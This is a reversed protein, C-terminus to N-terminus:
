GADTAIQNDAIVFARREDDSMGRATIVPVEELGLLQAALLRGHGAIIVGDEGAIIPNRFGFREISRAIKAIQEDSHTRSNRAYPKLLATKIAAIEGSHQMGAQTKAKENKAKSM